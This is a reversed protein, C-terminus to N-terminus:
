PRHVASSVWHWFWGCDCTRIVPQMELRTLETPNNDPVLARPGNAFHFTTSSGLEAELLRQQLQGHIDVGPTPRLLLVMSAAIVAFVIWKSQM